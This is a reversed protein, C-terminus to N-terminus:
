KTEMIFTNRINIQTRKDNANSTLGVLQCIIFYYAYYIEYRKKKIIITPKLDMPLSIM